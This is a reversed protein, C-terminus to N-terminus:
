KYNKTAIYFSIGIVSFVLSIGLYDTMTLRIEQNNGGDFSSQDAKKKCNCNPNGECNSKVEPKAVEVIEKKIEVRPQIYKLLWKKHPHIEALEKELETKNTSEIYLDALKKELDEFNYVKENPKYKKLVKISDEAAENALLTMLTVEKKERINRKQKEM